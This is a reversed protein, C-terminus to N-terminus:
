PDAVGTLRGRAIAAKAIGPWASEVAAGNPLNLFSGMAYVTFRYAHGPNRPCLPDYSAKGASNQAQRALPPLQGEQIDSTEPNIDFVLWYIFPTIPTSSDDVVLALAKTGPPAGSWHVPPSLRAGHCTYRQPILGQSLVSSTVSITNPVDQQFTKPGGVLGCGALLCGSATAIAARGLGSRGPPRSGTGVFLGV